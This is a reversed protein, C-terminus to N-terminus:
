EEEPLLEKRAASITPWGPRDGNRELLCEVNWLSQSESPHQITLTDSRSFRRLFADLIVAEAPTLDLTVLDVNSPLDSNTTSRLLFGWARLLDRSAETDGHIPLENIALRVVCRRIEELFSDGYHRVIFHQWEIEATKRDAFRDLFDAFSNRTIPSLPDYQNM